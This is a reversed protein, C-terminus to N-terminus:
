EVWVKVSDSIGEQLFTIPMNTSLPRADEWSYLSITAAGPKLARVTGFKDVSAVASNSSHYIVNNRTAKAPSIAHELQHQEGAQTIFDEQLLNISRVPKYQNEEIVRRLRYYAETQEATLNRLDLGSYLRVKWKREIFKDGARELSDTRLDFFRGSPFEETPGYFKFENTFAYRLLIDTKEVPDNGNWWSYVYDRHPESEGMAQSWFSIGDLDSARPITM